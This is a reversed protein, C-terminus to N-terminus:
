ANASPVGHLEGLKKRGGACRSGGLSDLRRGGALVVYSGAVTLEIEEAQRMGSPNSSFILIV